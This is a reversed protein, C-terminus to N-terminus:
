TSYSRVARWRHTMNMYERYPVYRVVTGFMPRLTSTRLRALLSTPQFLINPVKFLWISTRVCWWNSFINDLACFLPIYPASNKTSRGLMYIDLMM